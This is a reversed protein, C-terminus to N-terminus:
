YSVAYFSQPLGPFWNVNYLLTETVVKWSLKIDFTKHFSKLKLQPQLHIFRFNQLLVFRFVYNIHKKPFVKQIDIKSKCNINEASM